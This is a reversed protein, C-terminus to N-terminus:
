GATGGISTRFYGGVSSGDKASASIQFIWTGPALEVNAAFHGPDFRILKVPESAGGPPVASATASSIALEAGSSQFFTFHVANTGPTGPDVYTQLSGGGALMITYVTPQGAARNVSVHEPPLTPRMTLPVTVATTSGQVTAQVSYTGFISLMSGRGRWTAGSVHRLDLTSSGVEPRAPLTFALQVSRAAVPEGTDYDTVQATFTNPGVTGPSVTLRLRVSTAFDHGNVVLATPHEHAAAAPVQSAPPLQSLTAAALLIAAGVVVEGRVTRRLLEIQSADSSRPVRRFHNHAGLAVLVAVLGAKISLTIGFSTSVFQHVADIEALARLIGTVITLVLAITALRSFRRVLEARDPGTPDGVALVAVSSPRGAGAGGAIEPIPRRRTALLLWPLGGVWVGVATLHLWDDLINATRLSSPAGAHGEVAHVLMAAAALVGVGLLTSRGPRITAVVIAAELLLLAVGRELFANGTDTGVFRAFSIGIVSREALTMAVLGIASMGWAAWLMWRRAVPRRAILIGVSAAGVLLALGWYFLWRGVVAAITPRPTSGAGLMSTAGPPPARGIGFAFSGTTVHGDTRSVTRWSVTYVGEPLPATIPLRLETPHGPVAQVGEEKVSGGTSSLATITSLGPDPPETFTLLLEDPSAALNAGAPPDSDKLMAHALATGSLLAVFSAALLGVAVLRRPPGARSPGRDRPTTMTTV